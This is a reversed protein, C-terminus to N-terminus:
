AACNPFGAAGSYADAREATQRPHQAGILTGLEGTVREIAPGVAVAHRQTQYLGPFRRLVRVHLAEVALEAVLAQVLVPEAREGLGALDDACPASVVVLTSRVAREAVAGGGLEGGGPTGPIGPM